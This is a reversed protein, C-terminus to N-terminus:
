EKESKNGAGDNADDKAANPDKADESADVGDHSHGYHNVQDALHKPDCSLEVVNMEHGDLDVIFMGMRDGEPHVYIMTQEGGKRSTERVMPEWGSGLRQEVLRNLEQGDVEADFHEFDAVKLRGVAGHSAARGALSILGMFPIRTAHVHYRTEIAGIVGDFGGGGNAMVVAPAVLAAVAVPIAAIWWARKM